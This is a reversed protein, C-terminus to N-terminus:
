KLKEAYTIFNGLRFKLTLKPTVKLLSKGFGLLSSSVAVLHRLTFYNRSKVIQIGGFGASKLSKSISNKNFIQPHQLCFPPWRTGLARRLMSYEDHTVFFVKGESDLRSFLEELDAKLNLLHDLVHIGIVGSFKSEIAVESWSSALCGQGRVMQGLHEHSNLNPEIISFSSISPSNAILSAFNGLDAGIEIWHGCIETKRNLVEFYSRQTKELSNSELGASNDGMHGYLIKLQEDNFYIPCYLLDCNPCRHYSFFVAGKRFGRWFEKLVEFSLNEARESSSVVRKALKSSTGCCPCDRQIYEQM